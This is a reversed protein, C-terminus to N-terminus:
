CFPSKYSRPRLWNNGYEGKTLADWDCPPPSHRQLVSSSSNQRTKVGAAIWSLSLFFFYVLLLVFAEGCDVSLPAFAFFFFISFACLHRSVVVAFPVISPFFHVFFTSLFFSASFPPPPSLALGRFPRTTAAACGCSVCMCVSSLQSPPPLFPALSPPALFCSSAATTTAAARSPTSTM